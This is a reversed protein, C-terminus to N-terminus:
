ESVREERPPAGTIQRERNEDEPAIATATVGMVELFADVVKPDFQKGSEEIIVRVTVEDLLGARYPRDATMADYTDAVAIIRAGLPIQDGSLGEPYGEGDYREHHHEIIDHGANFLPFSEVIQASIVPHEKIKDHEEDTLKGAKFLVADPTGVKGLDHMRASLHITEVEDPPLDMQKAMARALEAVRQSHQYTSPDRADVSNAFAILADLTRRRLETTLELARYMIFLPPLMLAVALPQQQILLALLTGLPATFIMHYVVDRYNTRWVIFPSLGLALSIALTVLGTNLVYHAVWMVVIAPMDRISVLIYAGDDAVYQFAWALTTDVIMWQSVNFAKKYWPRAFRMEALSKSLFVVLPISPPPLLMIAAISASVELTVEAEGPRLIIAYVGLGYILGAVLLVTGLPLHSWTLERVAWLLLIASTAWICLLYVRAPLSLESLSAELGLWRVLTPKFSSLWTRNWLTEVKEADFHSRFMGLM